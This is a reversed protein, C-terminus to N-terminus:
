LASVSLLGFIGWFQWWFTLILAILFPFSDAVVAGVDLIGELLGAVGDPFFTVSVFIIVHFLVQLQLLMLPLKPLLPDLDLFVHFVDMIMMDILVENNVFGKLVVKCFRLSSSM